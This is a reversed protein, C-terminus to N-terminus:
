IVLRKKDLVVVHTLCLMRSSPAVKHFQFIPCSENAGYLHNYKILGHLSGVCEVHEAVLFEILKRIQKMQFLGEYQNEWFM